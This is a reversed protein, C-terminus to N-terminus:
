RRASPMRATAPQAAGILGMPIAWLIIAYM